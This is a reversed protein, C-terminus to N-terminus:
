MAGGSLAFSRQAMAPLLDHEECSGVRPSTGACTLDKGPDHAVTSLPAHEVLMDVRNRQVDGVTLTHPQKWLSQPQKFKQFDEDMTQLRTQQKFVPGILRKGVICVKRNNLRGHVKAGNHLVQMSTSIQVKCLRTFRKTCAMASAVTAAQCCKSLM